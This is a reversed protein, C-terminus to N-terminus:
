NTDTLVGARVNRPPRQQTLFGVFHEMCFNEVMARTQDLLPLFLFSRLMQM